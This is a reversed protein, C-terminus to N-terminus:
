PLAERGFLTVPCFPGEHAGAAEVELHNVQEEIGNWRRSLIAEKYPDYSFEMTNGQSSYQVTRVGGAEVRESVQAGSARAVFQDWSVDQATALEVVFGARWGNIEHRSFDEPPGDYNEVSLM